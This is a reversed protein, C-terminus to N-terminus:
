HVYGTEAEVTITTGGVTFSSGATPRGLADFIITPAASLTIDNKIACSINSGSLALDCSTGSASSVAVSVSRRQAIALKQGYRLAAKVQDGAERDDYDGRSFFKPMAVAALIGVIIMVTVLEVMTFGRNKKLQNM